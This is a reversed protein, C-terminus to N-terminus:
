HPQSKRWAEFVVIGWLKFVLTDDGKAFRDLYSSLIKKNILGGCIETAEQLYPVILRSHNRRVYKALPFTFGHKQVDWIEKPVYRTYLNRLVFKPKGNDFDFLLSEDLNELYAKVDDDWFPHRLNLNFTRTAEHIRDDPMAKLLARYLKLPSLNKHKQFQRYFLTDGFDIQKKFLNILERKRWGNWRAFLDPPDEFDFLQRYGSLLGTTQILKFFGLRISSPLNSTYKLAALKIRPPLEGLLGDAGTGDLFVDAHNKAFNFKLFTPLSAPDAYPQDMNSIVDNFVADYDSEEFYLKHHKIGIHTSVKAAIHMEDLHKEDFGVTFAEVTDPSIKAAIAAIVGSDIGGSLFVGTKGSTGLRERVKSNLITDLKETATDIEEPLPDGKRERITAETIHIRGKRYTLLSGPELHLVNRYITKPGAIDLFRLYEYIASDNLGEWAANRRVVYPLRNSFTLGSVSDFHYFLGRAGIPDRYLHMEDESEDVLVASFVGRLRRFCTSGWKEYATELVVALPSAPIGLKKEIETQNFAEGVVFARWGDSSVRAILNPRDPAASFCLGMDRYEYSQKPMNVNHSMERLGDSLTTGSCGAIGWFYGWNM